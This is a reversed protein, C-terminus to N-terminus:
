KGTLWAPRTKSQLKSIRAPDDFGSVVYANQNSERRLVVLKDGYIIYCKNPDTEHPFIRGKAIAEPLDRLSEPHKALIHSIGEGLTYTRGQADPAKNGPTGWKFDIQGIGKRYMAKQVDTKQRIARDMANQGRQINDNESLGGGNEDVWKGLSDRKGAGLTSLLLLSVAAAAAEILADKRKEPPLSMIQQLQDAGIVATVGAAGGLKNFAQRAAESSVGAKAAVVKSIAGSYEDIFPLAATIVAQKPDFGESTTGFALASNM